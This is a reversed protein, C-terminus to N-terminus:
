LCFLNWIGINGLVFVEMICVQNSSVKYGHKQSFMKAMSISISLSVAAITIAPVILLNLHNFSPLVPLPLGRKIEGVVSIGYQSHLHTFHSIITGIIV